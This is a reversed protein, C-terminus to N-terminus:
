ISQKDTFYCQYRINLINFNFAAKVFFNKHRVDYTKFYFVQFFFGQCICIHHDFRNLIGKKLSEKQDTSEVYKLIFDLNSLHM